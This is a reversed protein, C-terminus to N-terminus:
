ALAREKLGWWGESLRSILWQYHSSSNAGSISAVWIITKESCYCEITPRVSQFTHLLHILSIPEFCLKFNLIEKFNKWIPTLKQVCLKQKEIQQLFKDFIVHHHWFYSQIKLAIVKHQTCAEESGFRHCKWGKIRIKMFTYWINIQYNTAIHCWMKYIYYKWYKSLKKVM